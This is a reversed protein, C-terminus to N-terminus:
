EARGFHYVRVPWALAYRFAARPDTGYTHRDETYELYAVIGYFVALGGVIAGLLAAPIPNM